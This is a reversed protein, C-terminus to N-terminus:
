ETIFGVALKSFFHTEADESLIRAADAPSVVAQTRFQGSGMADVAKITLPNAGVRGLALAREVSPYYGALGKELALEAPIDVTGWLETGAADLIKPCLSPALKLGRCDILLGTFNGQIAPPAVPEVAAPKPAPTAPPAPPEALRAPLEIQEALGMEGGYLQVAVEVLVTGDARQEERVVRAGRVFGSVSSTITDDAVMANRVTTTSTVRVAQVLELLNRRADVIAARRALLAAQPGRVGAPPAGLGTARVVGDTWDVAGHEAPLVELVGSVKVRTQAQALMGVGLMLVLGIMIVRM